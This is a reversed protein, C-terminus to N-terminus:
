GGIGFPEDVAFLWEGSAQRRAVEVSQGARQTPKGDPGTMDVTWRSSLLAIDGTQAVLRPAMTMTPRAEVFAALAARIAAHGRVTNGPPSTLSADPEYLRVLADLDRANLHQAFLHDLDEPTRATM